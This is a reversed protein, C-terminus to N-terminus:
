LHGLLIVFSKAFRSLLIVFHSLLIIFHILLIIFSQAFDYIVSLIM